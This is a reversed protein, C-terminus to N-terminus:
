KINLSEGVKEAVEQELDNFSIVISQDLELLRQVCSSSLIVLLLPLHIVTIGRSCGVQVRSREEQTFGMSPSHPLLSGGEWAPVPHRGGEKRPVDGEGRPM